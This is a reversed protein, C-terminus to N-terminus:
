NLKYRKHYLVIMMYCIEYTLIINYRNYFFYFLQFIIDHMQCIVLNSIDIFDYSTYTMVDHVQADHTPTSATM